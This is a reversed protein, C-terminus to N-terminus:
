SDHHHEPTGFTNHRTVASYTAGSTRSAFTNYRTHGWPVGEGIDLGRTVLFKVAQGLGRTILAAIM